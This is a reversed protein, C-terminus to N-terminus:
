AEPALWEVARDFAGLERLGLWLAEVYAKRRTEGEGGLEEDFTTGAAAFVQLSECHVDFAEKLEEMSKPGTSKDHGDPDFIALEAYVLAMLALGDISDVLGEFEDYNLQVIRWDATSISPKKPTTQSSEAAQYVQKGDLVEFLAPEPVSYSRCACCYVAFNRPPMERATGSDGCGRCKYPKEFGNPAASDGCLYVVGHSRQNVRLTM